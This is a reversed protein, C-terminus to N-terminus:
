TSTMVPMPTHPLELVTHQAHSMVLKTHHIPRPWAPVRIEATSYRVRCVQRTLMLRAASAMVIKATMHAPRNGSSWVPRGHSAHHIIGCGFSMCIHGCNRLGSMHSTNATDVYRVVDTRNQYMPRTGSRPENRSRQAARPWRSLAMM